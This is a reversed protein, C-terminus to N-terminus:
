NTYKKILEFLKKKDIPKSLYHDFGMEMAREQDSEMAFASLAIIPIEKNKEKIKKMAEIGSLIPMKIDMLILNIKPNESFLDIAEQGNIAEILNIKSTSLLENLYLRNYEEDEAVLITINKDSKSIQSENSVYTSQVRKTKPKIYPITFFVTTGNTNSELWIDGKFLEVFRKSIALGLGTGKNEKQLELNAQTFREFIKEQHPKDIGVGSDKVFFELFSDKFVYGFSIEGVTTFKFANSLLNSLIQNLKTKDISINSKFNDLGKSYNLDIKTEISKQKFFEYIDDLLKNINVSEYNLKVVGAEIKSIDLVDNVISLLQKSSNIVIQAYRNKSENTTNSDLLLESFGIIGNMPTRIEHSINALFASKLKDSEQAKLLAKKLELNAKKREITLSLQDAVFELLMVDNNTYANENTYSQVVMAGFAKNNSKLPVGLWVKSPEGVLNVIGKSILEHHKKRNLFLPKNSDIVYGTLSGKAPFDTLLDIEDVIFPANIMKTKENLFGIYFNSTDIVKHLKNKIFLTFEEISDISLAEKSINFLVSELQEKKVKESIDIVVAHILPSDEEDNIQTLTVEAPFTSGDRKKHTWLFRSSGKKILNNIHLTALKSSNEGNPQIVPSIVSLGINQMSNKSDYGFVNLAVDNCDIILGNKFLFVTDYSKEFITRYKKESKELLTKAKINESIDDVLSAIGTVKGKPDKLRVNYWDCSIIKGSKTLNKNTNRSGGEKALLKEWVIKIEGIIDKPIILESAHKGFAEKATYGFIREASDNWELVKFDLDWIISALPTNNFQDKLRQNSIFFLEETKKRETIDEAIGQIHTIKNSENRIADLNVQIWKVEGNKTLIRFPKPKISNLTESKALKIVEESIFPLDNPNVVHYINVKNTLMDKFSYGFLQKCNESAFEVPFNWENRCLIAVSSSKNIINYATKIKNESIKRQTIENFFILVSNKSPIIRNQFWRNWPAFYNEFGIPTKTRVAKQYSDYFIDGEKEPFETWIVKGILDKPEKGLLKSATKNVYEYKSNYDLIVFGDNISSLTSSLLNRSENLKQENLVSETVDQVIGTIQVVKNNEIVVRRSESLHKVDGQVTRVRYDLKQIPNKLLWKFSFDGALHLDDEHAFSLYYDLSLPLSQPKLGLFNFIEDSWHVEKTTDNYFWSGLKALKQSEKYRNESEILAKRDKVIKTVDKVSVVVNKLSSDENPVKNFNIRVDIREGKLTKNVTEVESETKGKLLDELLKSFGINSEETFILNLNKFLEEKSKAKYLKLTALNVEKITVLSALEFIIEPHIKLYKAISINEKKSLEKIRNQAISFDEILLSIPSYEFFSWYTDNSFKIDNKDVIEKENNKLSDKENM